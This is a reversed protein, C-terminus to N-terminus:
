QRRLDIGLIDAVDDRAEPFSAHTRHILILPKDGAVDPVADQDIEAIGVGMLIIGLPGHAGRKIDHLRKRRCRCGLPRQNAAMDRLNADPNRRAKRDDAVQDPLAGLLARRGDSFRRRKRRSQLPQRRRVADHNRRRGM